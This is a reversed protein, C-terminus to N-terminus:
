PQRNDITATICAYDNGNKQRRLVGPTLTLYWRAEIPSSMAHPRIGTTFEIGRKEAALAYPYAQVTPELGGNRPIGGWIEGSSVQLLAVAPTQTKSEWRCFPGALAM